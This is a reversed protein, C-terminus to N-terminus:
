RWDTGQRDAVHPQDPVRRQPRRQSKVTWTPPTGHRGALQVLFLPLDEEIADRFHEFAFLGFDLDGGEAEASLDLRFPSRKVANRVIRLIVKHFDNELAQVM